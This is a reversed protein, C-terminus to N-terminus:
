ITGSAAAKWLRWFRYLPPLDAVDTLPRFRPDSMRALLPEVLALILFAPRLSPDLEGALARFRRLEDHATNAIGGLERRLSADSAQPNLGGEAGQLSPLPLFLRGSAAHLPVARMLATLGYALGAAEAAMEVKEGSGGLIQCSLSFLSGATERVYAHLAASGAMPERYLDFLRADVMMQLRDKPLRHRRIARALADALPHATRTSASSLEIADRWWQLRIQGVMPESVLYPIRAIEINFAYLALLDTRVNRPAFLASWYRDRDGERVTQAVARSEIRNGKAPRSGDGTTHSEGAPADM